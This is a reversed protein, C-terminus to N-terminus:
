VSAVTMDRADNTIFMAASAISVDAALLMRGFTEFLKGEKLLEGPPRINLGMDYGIILLPCTAWFAM